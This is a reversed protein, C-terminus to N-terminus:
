NPDVYWIQNTQNLGLNDWLQTRTGTSATAPKMTAWGVAPSRVPM